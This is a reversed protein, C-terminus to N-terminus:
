WRAVIADPGNAVLRAASYEGIVQELRSGLQREVRCGAEWTKARKAQGRLRGFAALDPLEGELRVLAELTQQRLAQEPIAACAVHDCLLVQDV